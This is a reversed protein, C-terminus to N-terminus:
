RTPLGVSVRVGASVADPLVSAARRSRGPFRDVLLSIVAQLLHSLRDTEDDGAVSVAAPQGLIMRRRRVMGEPLAVVIAVCWSLVLAVVRGEARRPSFM